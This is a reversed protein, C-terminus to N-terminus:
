EEWLAYVTMDETVEYVGYGYKTIVLEGGGPSTSFGRLKEIQADSYGFHSLDIGQYKYYDGYMDLDSSYYGYYSNECYPHNSAIGNLTFPADERVRITSKKGDSTGSWYITLTHTAEEIKKDEWKDYKGDFIGQALLSGGFFGGFLLILSLWIGWTYRLIFFVVKGVGYCIAGIASIILDM